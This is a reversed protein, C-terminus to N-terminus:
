MYIKIVPCESSASVVGLDLTAQQKTKEENTSTLTADTFVPDGCPIDSGGVDGELSIINLRDSIVDIDVSYAYSTGAEMTLTITVTALTGPAVAGDSPSTVSSAISVPDAPQNLPHFLFHKLFFIECFHIDNNYWQNYPIEDCIEVTNNYENASDVHLESSLFDIQLSNSSFNSTFHKKFLFM